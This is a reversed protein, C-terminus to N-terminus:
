SKMFKQPLTELRHIALWFFSCNKTTLSNCYNGIRDEVFWLQANNCHVVGGVNYIYM